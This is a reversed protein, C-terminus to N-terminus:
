PVPIAPPGRPLRPPHGPGAQGILMEEAKRDPRIALAYGKVGGFVLLMFFAQRLGERDRGATRWAAWLSSALNHSFGAVAVAAKDSARHRPARQVTADPLGPALPLPSDAAPAAVALPGQVLAIADPAEAVRTSAAAAIAAFGTLLFVLRM